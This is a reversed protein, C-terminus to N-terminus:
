LNSNVLTVYMRRGFFAKLMDQNGKSICMGRQLLFTHHTQQTSILSNELIFHLLGHGGRRLLRVQSCHHLQRPQQLPSLLHQHREQHERLPHKSDAAAPCLCLQQWDESGYVEPLIVVHEQM